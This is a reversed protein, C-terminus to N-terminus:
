RKWEQERHLRVVERAVDDVPRGTTDILHHCERYYAEREALLAQIRALLDGGTDLVPRAARQRRTRRVIAAASASLCVVHGSAAMLDRNEKSLVVGGGTAIVCQDRQAMQRLADTERARFSAEGETEFIKPIPMGAAREIVKDLDIYEYGLSRAALPGVASKGTGM